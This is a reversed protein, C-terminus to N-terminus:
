AMSRSRLIWLFFPAGVFATIVGIPLEAPAQVTRALVDALALFAGGFLFSLPIVRRNSVGAVLRVGHPVVLGVFGILGSVAVAAATALSAAVLVAMRIRRPHLGLARAEDDGVALVDLAGVALVLVAGCILAYPLLLLVEDWGSTSLRGLIWAYVQRLTEAHRQQVYTQAATFFAAVAVGALILTAPGGSGDRRVSLAAAMAVAVLAGIFAFMPIADFAGVGDGAGTVIALTAGLGAGAAIGLLYPDALPNRFVGQYGAGSGALLAGVLLGLVVRPTRIEWVIARQTDSLGSDISVLPLHDVLEVAVRHLPLSVPGTAIGVVTAVAVAALGALLWRPSLDTAAPLTGVLDDGDPPEVPAVSPGTTIGPGDTATTM